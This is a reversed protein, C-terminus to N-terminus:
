VHDNEAERHRTFVITHATVEQDTMQETVEEKDRWATLQRIPFM